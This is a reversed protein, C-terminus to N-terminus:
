GFVTLKKVNVDPTLNYHGERLDPSVCRPTHVSHQEGSPLGAASWEGM